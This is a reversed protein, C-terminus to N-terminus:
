EMRQDNWGPLEGKILQGDFYESLANIWPIRRELGMGPLAHEVTSLESAVDMSIVGTKVFDHLAGDGPDLDVAILSAIVRDIARKERRAHEIGENVFREFQTVGIEEQPSDIGNVSDHDSVLDPSNAIDQRAKSEPKAFTERVWRTQANVLVAQAVVFEKDLDTEWVRRAGSEGESIVFGGPLHDHRIAGHWGPQGANGISQYMPFERFM